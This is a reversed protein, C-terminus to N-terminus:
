KMLELRQTIWIARRDRKLEVEPPNSSSPPSIRLELNLEPYKEREPNNQNIFIVENNTKM